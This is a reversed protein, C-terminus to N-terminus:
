LHHAGLQAHHRQSKASRMIDMVILLLRQAGRCCACCGLPLLLALSADALADLWCAPAGAWDCPAYFGNGVCTLPPRSMGHMM